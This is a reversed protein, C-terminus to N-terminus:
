GVPGSPFGNEDDGHDLLRLVFSEEGALGPRLFVTEKASELGDESSLMARMGEGEELGAAWHWSSRDCGLVGMECM